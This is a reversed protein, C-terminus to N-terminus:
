MANLLKSMSSNDFGGYDDGMKVLKIDLEPMWRQLKRNAGDLNIDDNLDLADEHVIATFSTLQPLHKVIRLISKADKPHEWSADWFRIFITLKRLGPLQGLEVPLINCQHLDLSNLDRLERWFHPVSWIRSRWILNWLTLQRLNCLTGLPLFEALSEQVSFALIASM